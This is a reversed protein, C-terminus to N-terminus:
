YARSMDARRQAPLLQLLVGSSGPKGEYVREVDDYYRYADITACVASDNTGGTVVALGAWECTGFCDRNVVQM